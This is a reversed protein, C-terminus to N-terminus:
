LNEFYGGKARICARLRKPFNDVIARLLEVDIKSWAVQLSHKLAEVNGHPKTGVHTELISWVSYDLPNLDPSYPPWETSSILDPFHDKCWSQTMKARHAPASDQQFTWQMHNFHTRAWPEVVAALIQDRYNEKNIKVGQDVFVLPTKGNSTIGAWVMVSSPHGSRGVLRGSSNASPLNPSLIRVNQKNYREEITFLKEDSFLINRHAGDAFRTLLEKSKQLRTTKMKETLLHVPQIKYPKLKLKNKVINRISWESVGVEQAMKRMSRRPNRRIKSRIISKIRGTTASLPRGSRPRDSLSDLEQYRIIARSVSQKSIQLIKAIDCNREGRVHLQLIVARQSEKNMTGAFIALTLHLM